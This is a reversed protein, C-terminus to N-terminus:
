ASSARKLKRSILAGSPLCEKLFDSRRIESLIHSAEKLEGTWILAIGLRELLRRRQGAPSTERPRCLERRYWCRAARPDALWRERDGWTWAVGFCTKYDGVRNAAEWAVEILRRGEKLRGAAFLHQCHVQTAGAWLSDDQLKEAIRMARRSSALGSQTEARWLNCASLGLFVEGSLLTVPGGILLEEAARYHELAKPIDMIADSGAGGFDSFSKGLNAHMQAARETCQLTEYIELAAHLYQIEKARDFGTIHMLNGLRNLLDARLELDARHEEMLKLARQWHTASEEYAFVALAAEGARISYDIAKGSYELPVAMCYHHAIDSLHPTLNSQHIDEIAQAVLQHLKLRDATPIDNYITERILDHAFRFTLEGADTASIVGDRTLEDISKLLEALSKSDIQEIYHLGFEKGIVSGVRLLSNAEDTLCDLRRRIAECVGHPITFHAASVAGNHEEGREARVTRIVGDLFLPNGGTVQRLADILDREFHFATNQNLYEEIETRSLGRLPLETGERALDAFLRSMTPSSRVENDRYTGILMVRDSKLERAVFILLQLSAEDAAHLDDILIVLPEFSSLRKLLRAASDFLRFREQIPDGLAPKPLNPAEGGNHEFIEPILDVVQPSESNLTLDSPRLGSDCLCSRLIQIWPWYAPAGGGEWCRGWAVRVGQAVAMRGFEDALRTKGIGPEGSLLFLHGHGTTVDGLGALLEALGRERGVFSGPLRCEDRQNPFTV